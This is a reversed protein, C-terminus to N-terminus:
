SPFITFNWQQGAVTLPLSKGCGDLQSYYPFLDELVPIMISRGQLPFDAILWQGAILFKFVPRSPASLLGSRSGPYRRVEMIGSKRPYLPMQLSLVLLHRSQRLSLTGDKVQFLDRRKHQGPQPIKELL